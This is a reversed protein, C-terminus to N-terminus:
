GDCNKQVHQIKYKKQLYWQIKWIEPVYALRLFDNVIGAFFSITYKMSEKLLGDSPLKKGGAKSKFANVINLISATDVQKFKFENGYTNIAFEKFDINQIENNINTISDIFYSNLSEALQLENEM